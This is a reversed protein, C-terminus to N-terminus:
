YDIKSFCRYRNYQKSENTIFTEQTILVQSPLDLTSALIRTITTISHLFINNCLDSIFTRTEKDSIESISIVFQKPEEELDLPIFEAM